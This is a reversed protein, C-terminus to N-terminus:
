RGCCRKFKIGSGCPCRENRGIRRILRSAPIPPRPRSRRSLGAIGLLTLLAGELSVHGRM